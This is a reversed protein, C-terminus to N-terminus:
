PSPRRQREAIHRYQGIDARERGILASHSQSPALDISQCDNTAAPTAITQAKQATHFNTLGNRAPERPQEEQPPCRPAEFSGKSSM